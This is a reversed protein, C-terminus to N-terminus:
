GKEEEDSARKGGRQNESALLKSIVLGVNHVEDSTEEGTDGTFGDEVADLGADSISFRDNFIDRFSNSIDLALVGFLDLLTNGKETFGSLDDGSSSLDALSGTSIDFLEDGEGLGEGARFSEEVGNSLAEQDVVNFDEV